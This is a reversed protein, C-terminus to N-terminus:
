WLILILLIIAVNLSFSFIQNPITNKWYLPLWFQKNELYVRDILKFTIHHGIYMFLNGVINYSIQELWWRNNLFLYLKKLLPNSLSWKVQSNSYLLTISIITTLSAILVLMCHFNLIHTIKLQLLFINLNSLDM